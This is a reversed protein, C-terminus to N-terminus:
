QFQDPDLCVSRNAALSVTTYPKLNKSVVVGPMTQSHHHMVVGPMVISRVALGCRDEITIPLHIGNKDHDPSIAPDHGGTTMFIEPGFSCWNGIRIAAEATPAMIFAKEGIHCHEGIHINWGNFRAGSVITTHDGVEIGGIKRLLWRKAGHWRSAPMFSIIASAIRSGRNGFM